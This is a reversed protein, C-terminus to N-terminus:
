DVWKVKPMSRPATRYFKEDPYGITIAGFRAGKTGTLKQLNKNNTLAMQTWGNWCTGLGLAEAALRGYTLCIGIDTDEIYMNLQSYAIIL